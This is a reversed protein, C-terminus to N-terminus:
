LTKTTFISKNLTVDQPPITKCGLSDLLKRGYIFEFMEYPSKNGLSERSYSNIHNMMISIDEQSYKSIDVGKPIYYRIFEHNREASGKQWSAQPDCYFVRTRNVGNKDYEIAKPNSFESGNDALIIPFLKKFNDLGLVEYLMNFIGEVSKADNHSRIFALMLEAKVFHITLLVKGGKKGEVSDIQVVPTNPHSSLYENFQDITRGNRCAKDVKKVVTKKRKRYRVKRPLDINKASILQSDILRYVTSESVMISDSNTVCIHHPSQNKLILPTIIRDLEALEEESYSTGTRSESRLKVYKTHANEAQYMRKELSCFAINGCANCVYPPKKRKTCEEPIFDPCKQNCLKCGRCKKLNLANSCPHCLKSVDCTYRKRCANFPRHNAKSGSRVTVAKSQIEKSITSPDKDLYRAMEKFSQKNELM